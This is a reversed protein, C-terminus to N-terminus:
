LSLSLPSLPLSLIYQLMHLKFKCKKGDEYKVCLLLAHYVSSQAEELKKKKKLLSGLGQHSQAYLFLNSKMSSMLNPGSDFLAKTMLLIIIIIYLSFRLTREGVM